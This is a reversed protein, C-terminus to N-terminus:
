KRVRPRVTSVLVALLVILGNAVYQAYSNVGLLVMGNNLVGIFVVGILTGVMSGRGGYLNAGGVIVATIVAFEVGRGITPNGAGLQSTQLVASVAALLGTLGFLVTRIRAVPIGSLRAAEPNGGIAYVGRGFATRNALLWFLAFASVMVLAPIPVGLPAGNGWQAFGADIIPLPVANTLMLAAGSLASFLALTVIFSPVNLWARAAGAAAGIVAGSVCVAAAALWPPLGHHVALVGLLASGFAIASGISIDIEGAVIVLTMGFAIIGTFSLQRAVDLLNGATLFNPATASLVVVAVALVGLLALHQRGSHWAVAVMSRARSPAGPDSDAPPVVRGSFVATM